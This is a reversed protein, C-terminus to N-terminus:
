RSAAAPDVPEIRWRQLGQLVGGCGSDSSVSVIYVGDAATEADDAGAKAEPQWCAGGSSRIGYEDVASTNVLKFVRSSSRAGGEMCSGERVKTRTVSSVHLCKSAAVQNESKKWTEQDAPNINAPMVYYYGAETPGSAAKGPGEETLFGNEGALRGLLAGSDVGDEARVEAGKM